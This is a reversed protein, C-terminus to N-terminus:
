VCPARIVGPSVMRARSDVQCVNVASGVVGCRESPATHLCARLRCLSDLSMSVSATNTLALAPSICRRSVPILHQLTTIVVYRRSANDAPRPGM